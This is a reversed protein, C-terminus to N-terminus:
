KAEKFELIEDVAGYDKPASAEADKTRVGVTGSRNTKSLVRVM